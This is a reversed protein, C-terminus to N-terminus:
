QKLVSEVTDKCHKYVSARIEETMEPMPPISKGNEDSLAFGRQPDLLTKVMKEACVEPSKAFLQAGRVLWRIPAPMETGWSTSVFGPAAHVFRVEPADKALSMTIADTYFGAADAAQKLTFTAETLGNLEVPRSHVGASLVFLCAGGSKRLAEKAELAGALRSYVHLAM